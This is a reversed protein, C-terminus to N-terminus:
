QIELSMVNTDGADNQRYNVAVKKNSWECSFQDAGILIVHAKDAVKLKLTKSGSSIVLLATPETSCDVNKVTGRLFIPVGWKPGEVAPAAAVPDSAPESNGRHVLMLGSAGSQARQFQRLNELASAVRSAMEPSATKQLSQLIALANEPQRNALYINALNFRYNENRPDMAIAKRMTELAKSHDGSTTQAFALLAYSDAFDPDLSIATELERTLTPIDARSSFGSERAMLLANYYHVRPDKSDGESARKFFEAAQAFDQKQLYAYGLGRCAAANNPDSKLIEQFEVIAKGQYDPSHLHIDALVASADSSTLPRSTYSKESINDPAPIKFYRYRGDLMYDRLAKDFQQASMGFAQQIADEVSLHKNWKLEFYTGVKPLLQNDYIYHVLIGSQVYFSTRGNGNENYTESYHQVKFLDAIKMTGVQRLIPYDDPPIKGVRAEKGDVEISSFYEAFGEEFWPDSDGQVNGNMLQHAYEHFVTTWPDATSMDLMIFSRDSGGQFLGALQTPKGHFLPAVQRMEKTNRFAVIQLPVPLSVKAKTMLNGFVARMQEFRLAADRGRHEGADTIVSFNPSRVEVWQPEGASAPSACLIAVLLALVAMSARSFAPRTPM